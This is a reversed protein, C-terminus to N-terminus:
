LTINKTQKQVDLLIKIAAGRIDDKTHSLSPM